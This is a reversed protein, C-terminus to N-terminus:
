TKEVQERNQATYLPHLCLYKKDLFTINGVVAETIILGSLIKLDPPTNAKVFDMDENVSLGVITKSIGDFEVASRLVTRNNSYVCPYVFLNKNNIIPEPSDKSGCKMIKYQLLSLCKIIGTKTTFPSKRSECSSNSPGDLNRKSKGVNQKDWFGSGQGYCMPGQIFSFTRRGGLNMITSFFDPHYCRSSM